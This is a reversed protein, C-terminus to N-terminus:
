VEVRLADNAQTRAAALAPAISAILTLGSGVLLPILVSDQVFPLVPVSSQWGFVAAVCAGLLSGLLSSALGVVLSEILFVKAIFTDTAGLCKLTGIERYREVVSMLMTNAIGVACLALSMAALFRLKAQDDAVGLVRVGQLYAFFRGLRWSALRVCAFAVGLTGFRSM